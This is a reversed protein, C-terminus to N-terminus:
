AQTMGAPHGAAALLAEAASRARLAVDPDNTIGASVIAGEALLHVGECASPNTAAVWAAIQDHFAAKHASVETAIAESSAGLEGHANVWACGRFGPQCFWQHLWDFVALVRQRPDTAREVYEALDARWRIDRRRLMGVVLEEKSAYLAYIRKLALGAEARIEDMGVAQIGKAYLLVEAADLLSQRDRETQEDSILAPM